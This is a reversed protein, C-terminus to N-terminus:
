QSSVEARSKRERRAATQSPVLDSDMDQAWTRL